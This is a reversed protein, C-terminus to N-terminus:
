PTTKSNKDVYDSTPVTKDIGLSVLSSSLLNVIGWFVIITVFALVSYLALNKANERGEEEAGGIVFYRIVNIIFFLFALGLISPILANNIFTLLNKFFNQLGTGSTTPAATQAFTLLPLLIFSLAVLSIRKMYM